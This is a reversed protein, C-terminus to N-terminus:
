LTNGVIAALPWDDAAFKQGWCSISKDTLRACTTSGGAGLGTVSFNPGLTPAASDNKTGDGLQGRANGGWCTARNNVIACSHFTGASIFTAGSIGPVDVPKTGPAGAVGLAGFQNSGWCKVQRTGSLLVCAHASGAAIAVAGSIGQISVPLPSGGLVGTGFADGWCRVKGGSVIACSFQDGLAIATATGVVAVTVIALSDVKGGTGLQGENNRGWCRVSGNGAIACAHERGVAVATVSSVNGARVSTARPTTTGDGLVGFVNSGWCRVNGNSLVVCSSTPGVDVQVATTVGSVEVATDFSPTTTGNGLEGNANNGWCKVRGDGTAVCGHEVGWAPAPPDACCGGTPCRSFGVNCDFDCASAKCTPTAFDPAGCVKGCAGCNAVDASVDVCSRDCKTTNAPCTASCGTASCVDTAACVIGCAGCNAPDTASVCTEDCVLQSEACEVTSPQGADPDLPTEDGADAAILKRDELGAVAACAVLPPTLLALGFWASKRL